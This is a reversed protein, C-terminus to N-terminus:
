EIEGYIIEKAVISYMPGVLIGLIGFVKAGIYISIFIVLPHVDLKNGLFKVELIERIVQVLIYLCILGFSVLYNKMIINYIIIPIFVIITGVYPLLDLLGCILGLMFFKPIGLILFGFIIELTSILILIGQISIMNVFNNKQKMIKKIIDNPFVQSILELINERDVLIFFTCINAIFYALISDGTSVAGRRIDTDNLISFVGKGIKLDNLDINMSKSVNQILSNILEVNSLYIKKLIYYIEGGMYIITLILLINILILTTAGAIKRPINFRIMVKYLPMCIISMILIALFPKFYYKIIFTIIVTIILSLILSFIKKYGEFIIKM